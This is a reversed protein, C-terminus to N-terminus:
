RLEWELFFTSHLSFHSNNITNYNKGGWLWLRSHSNNSKNKFYNSITNKTLPAFITWTGLSISTAELNAPFYSVSVGVFCIFNPAKRFSQMTHVLRYHDANMLNKNTLALINFTKWKYFQESVLTPVDWCKEEGQQLKRRKWKKYNKSKFM